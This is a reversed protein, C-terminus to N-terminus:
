INKNEKWVYTRAKILKEPNGIISRHPILNNIKNVNGEVIIKLKKGKREFEQPIGSLMVKDIIKFLNERLSTVTLTNM